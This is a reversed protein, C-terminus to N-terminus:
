KLLIMKRTQIYEGAKLQYFYIGSPLSGATWDVKYIGSPKVENVLTVIENGLLDYVKIIVPSVEPINYTIITSPNFPNPFNQGLMFSLPTEDKQSEIGVMTQLIIDGNIDGHNQFVSFDRIDDAGDSNIGLDELEDCRWYAVLGSDETSYYNYTLTDNMTSQIQSQTRAVNWIRVEDISGLWFHDLSGTVPILTGIRVPTNSDSIYSISDASGAVLSAPIEEGNLYVHSEQNAIDFTGAIHYWTDPQIVASDSQLTRWVDFSEYIGLQIIGSDRIGLTWSLQDGGASSNYKSIIEKPLSLDQDIIWAEITIANTQPTLEPSDGIEVYDYAGDLYMWYGGIIQATIDTNFLIFAFLAPMLFKM